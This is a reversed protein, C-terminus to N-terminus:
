FVARALTLVDVRAAGAGKLLEACAQLTAGTTLVDDVILLNRGSVAAADTLDFVNKVNEIRQHRNLGTQPRSHHRRSLWAPRIKKRELDIGNRRALEPWRKILQYAQNFGRGRRRKPHLPIPVIVDVQAPDWHTQFVTWMLLGLPEALQICGQYKFHHILTRMATEYRGVSRVKDFLPPHARCDGCLHSRTHRSVFPLGCLTCMPPRIITFSPRCAPCLFGGLIDESGMPLNHRPLRYRGSRSGIFLRNCELCTLPFVMDLAQAILGRLKHAIASGVAPPQYGQGCRKM